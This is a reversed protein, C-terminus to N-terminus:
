DSFMEMGLMTDVITPIWSEASVVRAALESLELNASYFQLSMLPREILKRCQSTITLVVIDSMDKLM